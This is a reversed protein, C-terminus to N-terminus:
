SQGRAADRARRLVDLAKERRGRGEVSPQGGRLQRPVAFFHEIEQGLDGPVDDLHRVESWGPDRMPVLVLKPGADGGECTLLAAVPVGRAGRDDSPQGGAATV